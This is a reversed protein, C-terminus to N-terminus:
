PSCFHFTELGSVAFTMIYWPKSNLLGVKCEALWCNQHFLLWHTWMCKISRTTTTYVMLLLSFSNLSCRSGLTKGLTTIKAGPSCPNKQVPVEQWWTGHKYTCEQLFRMWKHMNLHFYAGMNGMIHPCHHSNGVGHDNTSVLEVAM